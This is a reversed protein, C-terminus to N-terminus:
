IICIICLNKCVLTYVYVNINTCLCCCSIVCPKFEKFLGNYANDALLHFHMYIIADNYNHMQSLYYLLVHVHLIYYIQFHNYCFTSHMGDCWGVMTKPLNKYIYEAVHEVTEIGASLM